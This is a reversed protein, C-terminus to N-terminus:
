FLVSPSFFLAMNNTEVHGQSKFDANQKFSLTVQFFFPYWVIVKVFYYKEKPFQM